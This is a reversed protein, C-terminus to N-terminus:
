FTIIANAWTANHKEKNTSSDIDFSLMFEFKRESWVWDPLDACCDWISCNCEMVAWFTSSEVIQLPLKPSMLNFSIIVPKIAIDPEDMCNKWGYQDVVCNPTLKEITGNGEITVKAILFINDFLQKDSLKSYPEVYNAFNNTFNNYDEASLTSKMDENLQQIVEATVPGFSTKINM